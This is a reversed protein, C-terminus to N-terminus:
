LGGDQITDIEKFRRDYQCTVQSSIGFLATPSNELSKVAAACYLGIVHFSRPRSGTRVGSVEFQGDVRRNDFDFTSARCSGRKPKGQLEKVASCFSTVSSKQSQEDFKRVEGGASVYSTRPLRFQWPLETRRM